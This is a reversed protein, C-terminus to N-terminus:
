VIDLYFTMICHSRSSEANMLTSFTSRSNEVMNLIARFDGFTKIPLKEM